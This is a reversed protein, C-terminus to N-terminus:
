QSSRKEIVKTVSALRTWAQDAIEVLVAQVDDDTWGNTEHIFRSWVARCVADLKHKALMKAATDSPLVTDTM